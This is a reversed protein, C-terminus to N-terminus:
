VKIFRLDKDNTKGLVVGGKWKAGKDGRQLGVNGVGGVKEKEV